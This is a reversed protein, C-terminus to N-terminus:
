LGRDICPFRFQMQRNTLLEQYLGDEGVHIAIVTNLIRDLGLAFCSKQNCPTQCPLYHCALAYM